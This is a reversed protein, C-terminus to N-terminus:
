ETSNCLIQTLFMREFIDSLNKTEIVITILKLPKNVIQVAKTEILQFWSHVSTIDIM